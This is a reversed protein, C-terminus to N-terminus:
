KLNLNNLQYYRKQFPSLNNFVSRLDMGDVSFRLFPTRDSTNYGKYALFPILKLVKALKLTDTNWDKPQGFPVAFFPVYNPWHSMSEINKELNQKQEEYSLLSFRLHEHGHLGFDFLPNTCNEFLQYNSYFPSDVKAQKENCTAELKLLEKYISSDSTNRITSAAKMLIQDEFYPGLNYWYGMKESGYATNIFFTAPIDMRDLLPMVLDVISVDGDDFTIAVLTESLTAKKLAEIGQKLSVIKYYKKLFTMQEEFFSCENWIAKNHIKPDFVEGLQHYNLVVLKSQPILYQKIKNKFQNIM